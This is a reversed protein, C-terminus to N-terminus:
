KDVARIDAIAKTLIDRKRLWKLAEEHRKTQYYGSADLGTFDGEWGLSDHLVRHQEKWQWICFSKIATLGVEMVDGHCWSLMLPLWKEVASERAM